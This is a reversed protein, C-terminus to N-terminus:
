RWIEEKGMWLQYNSKRNEKTRVEARPFRHRYPDAKARLIEDPYQEEIEEPTMQDCVGPNREALVSRQRVIIEEHDLFHAATQFSRKRSSTWVTLPRQTEPTSSSTPSSTATNERLTLLFNKLNEAYRHGGPALPADAKYSYENLSV